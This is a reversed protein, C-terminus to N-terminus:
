FCVGISIDFSENKVGCEYDTLINTFEYLLLPDYNYLFELFVTHSILTTNEFGCGFSLGFVFDKFEDEIGWTLHDEDAPYGLFVDLRPGAMLYTSLRESGLTYKALLPVSLYDLRSYLTIEELSAWETTTYGMGKQEYVLGVLVSLNNFDFWETLIGAHFGSRRLFDEDNIFDHDWKQIASTYGAKFGWRKLPHAFASESFLFLLMIILSIRRM